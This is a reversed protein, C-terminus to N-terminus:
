NVLSTKEHHLLPPQFRHGSGLSRRQVKQAAKSNSPHVPSLLIAMALQDRWKMDSTLYNQSAFPGDTRGRGPETPQECNVDVSATRARQGCQMAVLLCLWPPLARVNM